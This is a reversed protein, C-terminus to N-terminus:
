KDETYVEDILGLELCENVDLYLDKKLLETIKKNTMLTNERLKNILNRMLAKNNNSADLIQDHTGGIDSARLQHILIMASPTAYKKAGAVLMVAGASMSYGEAITHVPIKSRKILDYMIFSELLFGGYSSIHLYIPKPKIELLNYESALMTFNDNMENLIKIFNETSQKNVDSYFYIHNKRAYVGSQSENMLGFLPNMEPTDDDNKSNYIKPKKQVVETEDINKRKQRQIKQRSFMNNNM